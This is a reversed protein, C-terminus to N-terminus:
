GGQSAYAWCPLVAWALAVSSLNSAARVLDPLGALCYFILIANIAIAIYLPMPLLNLLAWSFGFLLAISLCVFVAGKLKRKRGKNLRHEGMAIWKGFWVIPHPLRQPDGFILDLFWGIVLAMGGYGILTEM